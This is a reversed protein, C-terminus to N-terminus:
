HMSNYTQKNQDSSPKPPHYPGVVSGSQAVPPQAQPPPILAGNNDVMHMEKAIRLMTNRTNPNLEVINFSVGHRDLNPMQGQLESLFIRATKEVPNGYAGCGPLVFVVCVQKGQNENKVRIAQACQFAVNQRVLQEFNMASHQLMPNSTSWQDLYAKWRRDHAASSVVCIQHFEQERVLASNLDASSQLSALAGSDFFVCDSHLGTPSGARGTPLEYAYDQSDFYIPDDCPPNGCGCLDQIFTQSELYKPDRLSKALIALFWKTYRIKYNRVLDGNPARSSNEADVDRFHLPMFLGAATYRALAEELSGTGCKAVGDRNTAPANNVVPIIGAATKAKIVTAIDQGIFIPSQPDAAAVAVNEEGVQPQTLATGAAEIENLLDFLAADNQLLNDIITALQTSDQTDAIEYNIGLNGLRTKVNDQRLLKALFVAHGYWYQKRKEIDTKKFPLLQLLSQSLGKKVFRAYARPLLWALPTILAYGTFKFVNFMYNTSRNLASLM